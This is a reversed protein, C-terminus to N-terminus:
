ELIRFGACFRDGCAQLREFEAGTPPKPAQRQNGLGGVKRADLFIPVIPRESWRM